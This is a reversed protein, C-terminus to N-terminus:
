SRSRVCRPSALSWYAMDWSVHRLVFSYVDSERGAGFATLDSLSADSVESINANVYAQLRKKSM